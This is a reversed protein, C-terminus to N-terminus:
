LCKIIYVLNTIYYYILKNALIVYMVLTEVYFASNELVKVIDFYFQMRTFMSFLVRNRQFMEKTNLYNLSTGFIEIM